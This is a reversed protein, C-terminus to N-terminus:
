PRLPKGIAKRYAAFANVLSEKHAMPLDPLYILCDTLERLVLELAAREAIPNTKPKKM